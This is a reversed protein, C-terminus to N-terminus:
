QGAAEATEGPGRWLKWVRSIEARYGWDNPYKGGPGRAILALMTLIDERIPLDLSWLDAPDWGGNESTNYWALLFDAVRRCQGTDRMALKLLRELAAKQEPTM